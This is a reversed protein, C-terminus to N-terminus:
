DRLSKTTQISKGAKEPESNAKKNTDYKQKELMLMIERLYNVLGMLLNITRTKHSFIQIM